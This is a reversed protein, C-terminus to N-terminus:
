NSELADVRAILDDLLTFAVDLLMLSDDADRKSVDAAAIADDLLLFAVDVLMLSDEADAQATQTAEFNEEVWTALDEHAHDPYKKRNFPPMASLWSLMWLLVRPM